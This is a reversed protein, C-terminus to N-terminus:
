KRASEGSESHKQLFVPRRGLYPGKVRKEGEKPREAINKLGGGILMILFKWNWRSQIKLSQLTDPQLAGGSKEGGRGKKVGERKQVANTGRYSKGEKKSPGGSRKKFCKSRTFGTLQGGGQLLGKKKGERRSVKKMAKQVEVDAGWVVPTSAGRNQDRLVNQIL